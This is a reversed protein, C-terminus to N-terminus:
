LEVTSEDDDQMLLKHDYEPFEVVRSGVPTFLHVLVDIPKLIQPILICIFGPGLTYNIEHGDTTEEPLYRFCGDLFLSISSLTTITGVIGTLIAMFKQCNLDNEPISRRLNIAIIPISTIFNVIAVRITSECANDCEECYGRNLVDVNTCNSSKWTHSTIDNKYDVIVSSLGIYFIIDKTGITGKTWCTNIIVNSNKSISIVPILSTITSTLALVTMFLMIVRRNLNFYIFGYKGIKNCIINNNLYEFCKM